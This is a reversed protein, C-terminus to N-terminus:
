KVQLSCTDYGRPVLNFLVLLDKVHTTFQHSQIKNLRNRQNFVQPKKSFDDINLVIKAHQKLM